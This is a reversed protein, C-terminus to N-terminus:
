IKILKKMLIKFEELSIEGDGNLDYDKILKKLLKTTEEDDKVFGLLIKIEQMGLKGSRDEDFHSFANTLNKETLLFEKNLFASLFEEYEIFESGDKDITKTLESFEQDNLDFGVFYKSLGARLEDYSLRGDGSTDLKKFIIKLEKCYENSSYNHVLYSMIAQELKQAQTFKTIKNQIKLDVTDCKKQKASEHISNSIIWPDKLAEEANIRKKADFTLLKDILAKAQKSVNSWQSGSYSYKGLKVLEFTEYDDEGIFPPEGALLIYMIVGLSWLDCKKDYYGAIVEPAMYYPTGIRLRIKKEKHLNKGMSSNSIIYASGFDILKISLDGINSSEMMINEPKIDRHVIGNSHLYAVCSFLQEMIIAAQNESYCSLQEITEMLECGKALEVIVFYSEEAIFYEYIKIINPHDIQSLVEIEKLFKKSDDQLNIIEKKVVKLARLQGTEYHFVKYVKGFCGKGIKDLIKYSKVLSGKNELVLINKEITATNQKKIKTSKSNNYNNKSNNKTMHINQKESTSMGCGM